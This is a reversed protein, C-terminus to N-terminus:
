LSMRALYTQIFYSIRPKLYPDIPRKLNNQSCCKKFDETSVQHVSQNGYRM